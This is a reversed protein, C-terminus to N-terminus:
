QSNDQHIDNQEPVNSCTMRSLTMVVFPMRSLTMVILATGEIDIIDIMTKLTMRIFTM